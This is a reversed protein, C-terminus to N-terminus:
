TFLCMNTYRIDILYGLDFEQLNTFTLFVPTHYHQRIELVVRWIDVLLTLWRNTDGEM